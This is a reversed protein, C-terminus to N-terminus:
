SCPPAIVVSRLAPPTYLLHDVVAEPARAATELPMSKVAMGFRVKCYRNFQM